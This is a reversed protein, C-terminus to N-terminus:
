TSQKSGAVPFPWAAAAGRQEGTVTINERRWKEVEDAVQLAENVKEPEHTGSAAATNAWTRITQAALPDSGLLTFYPMDPKEELKAQCDFKGPNKWTGM